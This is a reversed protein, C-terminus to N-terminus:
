WIYSAMYGYMFHTSHTPLYFMEKRGEKIRRVDTVDQSLVKELIEEDSPGELDSERQHM